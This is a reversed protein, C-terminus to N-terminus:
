GFTVIYKNDSCWKLFYHIDDILRNYDIIDDILQIVKETKVLMEKLFTIEETDSTLDILEQIKENRLYQIYIEKYEKYFITYDEYLKVSDYYVEAEIHYKTKNSVSKTEKLKVKERIYYYASPIMYLYDCHEQPEYENDYLKSCRFCTCNEIRKWDNVGKKHDEHIFGSEPEVRYAQIIYGM